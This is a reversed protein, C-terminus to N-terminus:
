KYYEDRTDYPEGLQDGLDRYDAFIEEGKKIDRKAFYGAGNKYVTNSNDSHNLYNGIDMRNFFKPCLLKSDKQSICYGRLEEPVDNEDRLEEEFPKLFLDLYAGEAIDHLAFVGVGATKITSPKLIFSHRDTTNKMPEIKKEM